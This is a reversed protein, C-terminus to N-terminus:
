ITQFIVQSISFRLGRRWYSFFFYFYLSLNTTFIGDDGFTLSTEFCFNVLRWKFLKMQIGLRVLSCVYYALYLKYFIYNKSCIGCNRFGLLKYLVFYDALISFKGPNLYLFYKKSYAMTTSSSKM